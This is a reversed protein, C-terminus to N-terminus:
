SGDRACRFGYSTATHFFRDYDSRTNRLTSGSPSSWAGGRLIMHADDRPGPASGRLDAPVLSACDVCPTPLIIGDDFKGTQDLVWEIANGSLDLHGWRGAGKPYSGVAAVDAPSACGFCTPYVCSSGGATCTTENCTGTGPGGAACYSPPCTYAPKTVACHYAAYTDDIVNSSAPSSWPYYRQESGGSAAYGWEANTPLRGGDWACFAFAEFWRVNTIPRQEGAASPADTWTGDDLRAKLADTSDALEDNWAALWGSNAIKPHAGAGVAPAKTRIGFGADVFARFRGVTVEYKDLRFGSVTAPYAASDDRNFTGGPVAITECCSGAPSGCTAGAPNRCSPFPICEGSECLEACLRTQFKDGVCTAAVNGSCRKEGNTCTPPLPEPGDTGADAAADAASTTDGNRDPAPAGVNPCDPGDCVALDGAGTLANCAVVALAALAACFPRGRM